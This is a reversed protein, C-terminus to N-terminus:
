IRTGTTHYVVLDLDDYTVNSECYCIDKMQQLIRRRLAVELEKGARMGIHDLYKEFTEDELGERMDRKMERDIEGFTRTKTIKTDSKM